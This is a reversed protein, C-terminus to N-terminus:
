SAASVSLQLPAAPSDLPSDVPVIRCSHTRGRTAHLQNRRLLVVEPRNTSIADELHVYLIIKQNLFLERPHRPTTNPNSAKM